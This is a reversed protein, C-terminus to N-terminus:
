SDWVHASAGTRWIRALALDGTTENYYAAIPIGDTGITLSNFEGVVGNAAVLTTVNGNGCVPDGCLTVYLDDAEHDVHTIVPRGDIGIRLSKQLHDRPPTDISNVTVSGPACDLTGCHAVRVDGSFSEGYAILPLGDTGITLVTFIGAVGNDDVVVPTADVCTPACRLFMQRNNTADGYAIVPVGEPDITLSPNYGDDVGPTEMTQLDFTSCDPTECFTVRLDIEPFSLLHAIIPLGDPGITISTGAADSGPTVLPTTTGPSCAVSVLFLRVTSPRASLM